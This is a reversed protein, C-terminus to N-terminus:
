YQERSKFNLSHYPFFQALEEMACCLKMLKKCSCFDLGTAVLQLPIISAVCTSNVSQRVIVFMEYVVILTYRDATLYRCTDTYSKVIVEIDNTYWRRKKCKTKCIYIYTCMLISIAIYVALQSHQSAMQISYSQNMLALKTSIIAPCGKTEM